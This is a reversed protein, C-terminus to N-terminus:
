FVNDKIAFSVLPSMKGRRKGKRRGMGNYETIHILFFSNQDHPHYQGRKRCLLAISNRM